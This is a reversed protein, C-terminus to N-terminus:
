IGLAQEEAQKQLELTILRVKNGVLINIADDDAEEPIVVNHTECFVELKGADRIAQAKDLWKQAVKTSGGTRVAKTLDVEVSNAAEQIVESYTAELSEGEPLEADVRKIYAGESENYKVAKSDDDQPEKNREIGTAKEVAECIAARVKSLHSHAVYHQVAYELCRDAGAMENFQEVSTPLGVITLDFGLSSYTKSM